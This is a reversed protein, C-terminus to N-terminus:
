FERIRRQRDYILGGGVAVLGLGIVAYFWNDGISSASGLVVLLGVVIAASPGLPGRISAGCNPCNDSDLPITERCQRCEIQRETASM